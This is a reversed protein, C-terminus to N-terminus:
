RELTMVTKNKETKIFLATNDEIIDLNEFQENVSKLKKESGNFNISLIEGRNYKWTGNILQPHNTKIIIADNERVKGEMFLSHPEVKKNWLIKTLNLDVLFLENNSQGLFMSNNNGFFGKEFKIPFTFESNKDLNIFISKSTLRNDIWNNISIIIMNNKESFAIGSGLGDQTQYTFIEEGLNNLLIIKNKQDETILLAIKNRDINFLVSLEDDYNKDLLKIQKLLNGNSYFEAVGEVSHLLVSNGNEFVAIEPISFFPQLQKMIKYSEKGNSNITIEIKRIEFYKHNDLKLTFDAQGFMTISLSYLIFYTSTITKRM